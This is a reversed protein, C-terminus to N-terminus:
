TAKKLEKAATKFAVELQDAANQYAAIEGPKAQMLIARALLLHLEADDQTELLNNAYIQATQPSRTELNLKVLTRRTKDRKPDLALLKEGATIATKYTEPTHSYLECKLELAEPDNPKIQLYSELYRAALAYGKGNEYLRQAEKLLNKRGINQM